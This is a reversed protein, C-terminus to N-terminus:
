KASKGAKLKIVEDIYRIGKWKYPEPKKYSKIKATVEWLFQKDIGNLTLITNGKPDQETKITIWQPIEYNIKHSLWLSLVLNTGQIQAWYWVWMIMLKKEYGNTVWEIMNSILSRTLGRFKRDEEDKISTIITNEEKKINVCDLFKQSLEWKPWKIKVLWKEITVDVGEPVTIPKKWIKSM